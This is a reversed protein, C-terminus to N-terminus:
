SATSVQSFYHLSERRIVDLTKRGRRQYDDFWVDFGNNDLLSKMQAVEIKGRGDVGLDFTLFAPGLKDTYIM